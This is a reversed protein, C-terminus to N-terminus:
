SAPCAAFECNPGTRGVGSGDPCVKMEMTCARLEPTKVPAFSESFVGHAYYAFVGVAVVIILFKLM